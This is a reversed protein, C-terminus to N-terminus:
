RCVEAVVVVTKGRERTIVPKGTTKTMEPNM